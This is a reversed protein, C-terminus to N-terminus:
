RESANRLLQGATAYGDLLIEALTDFNAELGINLIFPHNDLVRPNAGEIRATLHGEGSADRDLEFKLSTYHFDALADRALAVVDGARDDLNPIDRPLADGLYSLLGSGTAALAGREISVGTNDLHIPITGSISGSGNLGQVDILALLAQLDVHDVKLVADLPKTPEFDIDALSLTGGAFDMKARALDIRAPAYGEPGPVIQAGGQAEAPGWPTAIAIQASVIDLRTFPASGPGGAAAMELGDVSFRGESYTMSIRPERVVVHHVRGQSLTAATWSIEVARATPGHDDGLAINELTLGGAHVRRVEFSRVPVNSHQAIATAAIDVLYERLYLAAGLILALGAFGITLWRILSRGAM